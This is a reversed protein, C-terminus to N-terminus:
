GTAARRLKPSCRDARRLSRAHAQFRGLGTGSLVGDIADALLLEFENCQMGNSTHDNKMHDPM